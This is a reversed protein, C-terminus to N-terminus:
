VIPSRVTLGLCNEPPAHGRNYGWSAEAKPTTIINHKRNWGVGYEGGRNDRYNRKEETM